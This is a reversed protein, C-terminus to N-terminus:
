LAVLLAAAGSSEFYDKVSKMENGGAGTAMKNRRNQPDTAILLGGLGAVGAIAGASLVADSAVASDALAPLASSAVISAALAAKKAHQSPGHAHAAVPAHPRQARAQPRFSGLSQM